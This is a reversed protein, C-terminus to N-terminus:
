WGTDILKIRIRGVKAAVASCLEATRRQGQLTPHQLDPIKAFSPAREQDNAVVDGWSSSEASPTEQHYRAQLINVITTYLAVCVNELLFVV